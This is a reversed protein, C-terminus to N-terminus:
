YVYKIGFAKEVIKIKRDIEEKTYQGSSAADQLPVCNTAKSCTNGVSVFCKTGAHWTTDVKTTCAGEDYNAPMVYNPSVNKAFSVNELTVTRAEQTIETEEIPNSITSKTCSLFTIVMVSCFFTLLTKLNM